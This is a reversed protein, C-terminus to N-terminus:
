ENSDKKDDMLHRIDRLQQMVKSDRGPGSLWGVILSAVWIVIALQVLFFILSGM